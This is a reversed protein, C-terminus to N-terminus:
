SPEVHDSNNHSPMGKSTLLSDVLKSMTEELRHLRDTLGLEMHKMGDQLSEIEVEVREIREKNTSMTVESQYWQYRDWDFRLHNFINRSLTLFLVM